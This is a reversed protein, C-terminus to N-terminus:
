NIREEKGAPPEGCVSVKYGGVPGTLEPAAYVMDTQRTIM